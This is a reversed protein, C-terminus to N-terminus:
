AGSSGTQEEDGENFEIAPAVPGASSPLAAIGIGYPPLEIAWVVNDLGDRLSIVAPGIQRLEKDWDYGTILRIEELGEFTVEAAEQEMFELASQTLYTSVRAADHHRKVRIRFRTKYTIERLPEKDSLTLGPVEDLEACLHSWLIDHIWNALGRNTHRAVIGPLLERYTALDGRTADVARSIGELVKDVLEDLVADPEPYSFM